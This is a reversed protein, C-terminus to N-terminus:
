CRQRGRIERQCMSAARRCAQEPCARAIGVLAEHGVEGHHSCLDMLGMDFIVCMIRLILM